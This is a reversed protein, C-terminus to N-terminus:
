PVQPESPFTGLSGPRGRPPPRLVAVQNSLLWYHVPTNELQGYSRNILGSIFEVLGLPTSVTSPRSKLISFISKLL